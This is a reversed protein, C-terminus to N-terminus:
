KQVPLGAQQWAAYGGALTHVKAFGQRRLTAAASASRNGHECHVIVPKAKFKELEGTRRALEGLPVNRAGLIHGKSFAAADRLDIVLADERNIMQTAQLTGVSPGGAGRRVIPWLLMAGSICAIAILIWNNQVFELTAPGHPEFRGPFPRRL